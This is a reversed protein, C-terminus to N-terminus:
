ENIKFWNDESTNLVQPEGVSKGDTKLYFGENVIVSTNLKSSENQLGQMIEVSRKSYEEQTIKGNQWDETLKTLADGNNEFSKTDLNKPTVEVSGEYVKVIDYRIGNEEKIEVTFQTGRVGAVYRETTVEFKGGGIMKKIKTWMSGVNLSSQRILDCVNEPLTYDTNPGLVIESGDSLEIKVMSEPGTKVQEGGKIVSYKEIAGNEYEYVTDTRQGCVDFIQMKRIKGTATGKLYTVRYECEGVGKSYYTETRSNSAGDFLLSDYPNTGSLVKGAGLAVLFLTIIIKKM